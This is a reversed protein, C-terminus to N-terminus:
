AYSVEVVGGGDGDVGDGGARFVCRAVGERVFVDLYKGVAKNAGKTMRTGDTFFEHLLVSLLDGPIKEKEAEGDSIGDEEDGETERRRKQKQPKTSPQSAFPDDSVEGEAEDEDADTEPSLSPLGM